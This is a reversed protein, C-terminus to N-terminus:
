MSLTLSSLMTLSFFISHLCKEPRSIGLGLAVVGTPVRQGAKPRQM